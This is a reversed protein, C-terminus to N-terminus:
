SRAGGPGVAIGDGVPRACAALLARRARRDGLRALEKAAQLEPVAGWGIAIAGAHWVAAALEADDAAQAQAVLSIVDALESVADLDGLEALRGLGLAYLRDGLLLALDPDDCRVIRGVRRGYHLLSGEVIMELLLEYEGRNGATRPGSAALGPAGAGPPDALPSGAGPPDALAVAAGPPDALGGAEPAVLCAALTGGEAMLTAYLAELTM